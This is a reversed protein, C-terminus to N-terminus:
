GGSGREDLLFFPFHAATHLPLAAPLIIPLSRTFITTQSLM